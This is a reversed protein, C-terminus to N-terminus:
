NQEAHNIKREAFMPLIGRVTRVPLHPTRPYV